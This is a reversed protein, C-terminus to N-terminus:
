SKPLQVLLVTILKKPVHKVNKAVNQVLLMVMIGLELHVDVTHPMLETETVNSVDKKIALKVNPHVLKVTEQMIKISDQNVIVDQLM